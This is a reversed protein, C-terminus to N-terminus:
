HLTTGCFRYINFKNTVLSFCFSNRCMWSSGFLNCHSEGSAQELLINDPSKNENNWTLKIAVCPVYIFCMERTSDLSKNSRKKERGSSTTECNRNCCLACEVNVRDVMCFRCCCCSYYIFNCFFFIFLCSAQIRECAPNCIAINCNWIAKLVAGAALERVFVSHMLWLMCECMWKISDNVQEILKWQEHWKMWVIERTIKHNRVWVSFFVIRKQRKVM